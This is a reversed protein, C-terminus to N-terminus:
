QTSSRSTVPSVDGIQDTIRGDDAGNAIQILM